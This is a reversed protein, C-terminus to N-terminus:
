SNLNLAPVFSIFAKVGRAFTVPTALGAGWFVAPLPVAGAGPLLLGRAILFFGELGTAGPDNSVLVPEGSLWSPPLPWLVGSGEVGLM